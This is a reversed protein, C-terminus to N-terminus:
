PSTVVVDSTPSPAPATFGGVPSAPQPCAGIFDIDAHAQGGLQGAGGGGKISLSGGCRDLAKELLKARDEPSLDRVLPTLCGSVMVGIAAVAIIRFNKM